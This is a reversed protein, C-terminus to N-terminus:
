GGTLLLDEGMRGSSMLSKIARIRFYKDSKFDESTLGYKGYAELLESIGKKLCWKPNFDPLTKKIKSFDVRYSRDDPGTENLIKIKSAPLIKQIEEAIDKVQYNDENVGVNFAQSHIMKVPAKLAAIFAGCFDEVHVIPRWPTGDSNITIEGTLDAWALLNNVVLDLRLRPSVGYATANRMFVPHFDGDAMKALEVEADVKAKAYSTIPNLIGDENIASDTKMKGYISCSSAFIFRGVGNQKCFEAIKITSKYNIEATLASNIDGLPDNSLAALHIVADIGKLDDKTIGRIDKIIQKHPKSDEPIPFLLNDKFWGSDLGVVYYFQDKLFKAMVTGIYGLNGTLLVSPDRSKPTEMPVIEEMGEVSGNRNEM